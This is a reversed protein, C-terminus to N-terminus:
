EPIIKLNKFDGESYHGVWFGMWGEKRTNLQEIILSPKEANNVFVKVTPYQIILTVHFWGDPEPVPFITSEYKGPHEKRLKHWTYQPHSIYQVSHVNREPNKFNFPRFYIVDYTTDNLGHFAVGVFSKGQEDKGRIDLEITGNSFIPAKLWLLGDGPKANLHVEKEVDLERNHLMWLGPDSTKTLDPIIEVQQAALSFGISVLIIVFFLRIIKM